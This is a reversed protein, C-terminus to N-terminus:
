NDDEGVKGCPSHGQLTRLPEGTWIDLSNEVRYRYLTIADDQEAKSRKHKKRSQSYKVIASAVSEGEM